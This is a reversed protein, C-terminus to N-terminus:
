KSGLERIAGTTSDFVAYAPAKKDTFLSPDLGFVVGYQAVGTSLRALQRGNFTATFTAQGPVCYALGGKPFKKVEGKENKPLEGRSEVNISLYVPM